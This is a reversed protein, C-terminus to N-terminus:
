SKITAILQSLETEDTLWEVAHSSVPVETRVVRTPSGNLGTKASDLELDAATWRLIAKQQAEEWARLTPAPITNAEKVITLVCPYDAKLTQTGRDTIKEVEIGDTDAKLIRKVETLQLYSMRAAVGPGVQATDGDIAQRGFLLLIDTGQEPSLLKRTAASLIYSTSWTDSGAFARDTLLVAEDAGLMLAERLVSEAQPPGMTVAVITGGQQKRIEVAAQLAHLDDPNTQSKTGARMLTHTVPDIRVETSAPVQKLFVIQKMNTLLTNQKDARRTAAPTPVVRNSLPM